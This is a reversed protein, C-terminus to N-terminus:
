FRLLNEAVKFDCATNNKVDEVTHDGGVECLTM